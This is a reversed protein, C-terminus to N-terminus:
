KYKDHRKLAKVAPEFKQAARGLVPDGHSPLLHDFEHERLIKALELSDPKHAGYFGPGVNCPKIFGMMRAMFRGLYNFYPDSSSFNQFADGCVMVKGADPRTLLLMGEPPSATEVLVLSANSLPLKKTSKDIWKDPVFYDDGKNEELGEFYRTGALAWVQAGYREQYFPDDMGHFGALRIVHKVTGLAELEKLGDEDLRVSNILTLDNKSSGEERVITMNRSFRMPLLGFMMKMEVTGTVFFVNQFITEISGHPLAAPHPRPPTVSSPPM